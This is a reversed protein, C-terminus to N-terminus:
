VKATCCWGTNETHKAKIEKIDVKETGTNKNQEM